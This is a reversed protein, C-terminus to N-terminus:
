PHGVLESGDDALVLQLIDAPSDGADEEGDEGHQAPDPEVDRSEDHEEEDEADEEVSGPVTPVDVLVVAPGPFQQSSKPAGGVSNDHARPGHEIRSGLFDSSNSSCHVFKVRISIGSLFNLLSIM